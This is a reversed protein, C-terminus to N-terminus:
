KNKKKKMIIEDDKIRRLIAEKIRKLHVKQIRDKREKTLAFGGERVNQYKTRISISENM